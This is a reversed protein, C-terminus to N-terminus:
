VSALKMQADTLGCDEFDDDDYPDENYAEKWKEYLSKNGVGSTSKYSKNVKYSRSAMFSATENFVEDVESDSDADLLDDVTPKLPKGDDNVLVLKGDLIQIEIDNIRAALPTIKPSGFAESLTGHAYSVVDSNAEKEALKLISKILGYKSWTNEVYNEVISYAVHKGLFFGYVANGLQEHFVRISEMSIAVDVNSTSNTVEDVSYCGWIYMLAASYLM